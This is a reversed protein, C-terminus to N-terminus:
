NKMINADMKVWHMITDSQRWDMKGPGCKESTPRFRFAPSLTKSKRKEEMAFALFRNDEM